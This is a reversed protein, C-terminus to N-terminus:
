ILCDWISRRYRSAPSGVRYMSGVSSDNVYSNVDSSNGLLQGEPWCVCAVTRPCAANPPEHHTDGPVESRRAIDWSRPGNAPVANVQPGGEVTGPIVVHRDFNGNQDPDAGCINQTVKPPISDAEGWYDAQMAQGCATTSDCQIFNELM